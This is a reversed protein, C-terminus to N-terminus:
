WCRRRVITRTGALATDVCVHVGASEDPVEVVHASRGEPGIDIDTDVFPLWRMKTSTAIVDIRWCDLPRITPM